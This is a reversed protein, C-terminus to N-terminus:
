ATASMSAINHTKNRSWTTHHTESCFVENRTTSCDHQYGVHPIYNGMYRYLYCWNLPSFSSICPVFIQDGYVFSWSLNKLLTKHSQRACPVLPWWSSMILKESVLWGWFRRPRGIFNEQKLTIQNFGEPLNKLLQQFTEPKPCFFICFSRTIIIKKLM